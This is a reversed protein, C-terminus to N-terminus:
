QRRGGCQVGFLPVLFRESCQLSAYEYGYVYIAYDDSYCGFLVHFSYQSQAFKQHCSASCLSDYSHRCHILLPYHKQLIDSATHLSSKWLQPQRKLINESTLAGVTCMFGPVIRMSNTQLAYNNNLSQILEYVQVRGRHEDLDM